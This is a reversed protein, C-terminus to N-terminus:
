KLQYELYVAKGTYESVSCCNQIFRIKEQDTERINGPIELYSEIVNEIPLDENSIRNQFEILKQETKDSFKMNLGKTLSMINAAITKFGKIKNVLIFKEDIKTACIQIKKLYKSKYTNDM